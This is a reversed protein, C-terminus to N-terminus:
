PHHGHGLGLLTELRSEVRHLYHAAQEVYVDIAVALVPILVDLSPIPGTADYSLWIAVSVVTLLALVFVALLRVKRLARTFAGPKDDAKDQTHRWRCSILFYGFWIVSCVLVIWLKGALLELLSKDHNQPYLAFSRVANIVVDPGAMDGLPTYHRDRRQPNSAGIVVIKQAYMDDQACPSTETAWLNAALCHRYLSGYRMLRSRQPADLPDEHAEINPITYVIRPFNEVELIRTDPPCIGEPTADSNSVLSGALYPLSPIMRDNRTDFLCKPYRRVPMGPTPLAVTAYLNPPRSTLLPQTEGGVRYDFDKASSSTPVVPDAWLIPVTTLPLLRTLAATEPEGISGDELGLLVDIVILQPLKEPQLEEGPKALKAIVAALLYRNIPRASSCDTPKLDPVGATRPIAACTELGEAPPANRIVPPSGRSRFQGLAPDPDLDLFVFAPTRSDGHDRLRRSVPGIEALKMKLNLGLDQGFEQIEPYARTAVIVVIVATVLGLACGVLTKVIAQRVWTPLRELPNKKVDAM